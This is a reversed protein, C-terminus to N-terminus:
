QALILTKHKKRFVKHFFENGQRRWERFAVWLGQSMTGEKIKLGDSDCRGSGGGLTM